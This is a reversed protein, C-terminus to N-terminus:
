FTITRHVPCTDPHICEIKFEEPNLLRVGPGIKWPEVSIQPLYYNDKGFIIVLHTTGDKATLEHERASWSSTTPDAPTTKMGNTKNMIIGIKM